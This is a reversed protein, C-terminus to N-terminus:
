LIKSIWPCEACAAGGPRVARERGFGLQPPARRARVQGRAGWVATFERLKEVSPRAQRRCVRGLFTM